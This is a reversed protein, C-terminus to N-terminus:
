VAVREVQVGDRHGFRQAVERDDHIRAVGSAHAVLHDRERAGRDRGARVAQQDFDVEIGFAGDAVALL